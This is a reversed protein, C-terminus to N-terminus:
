SGSGSPSPLYRKWIASPGLTEVFAAHAQEDEATLRAPLPVSRPAVRRRGNINANRAGAQEGRGLVLTAQREGLLEVYVEALLFSDM